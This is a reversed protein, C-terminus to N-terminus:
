STRVESSHTRGNACALTHIRKHLRGTVGRRPPPCPRTAASQSVNRGAQPCFMRHSDATPPPHPAPLARNRRARRNRAPPPASFCVRLCQCQDHLPLPSQADM